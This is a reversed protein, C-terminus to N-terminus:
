ADFIVHVGTVTKIYIYPQRITKNWHTIFPSCWDSNQSYVDSGDFYAKSQNLASDWLGLNTNYQIKPQVNKLRHWFYMESIFWCNFIFKLPWQFHAYALSTLIIWNGGKSILPCSIWDSHHCILWCFWGLYCSCSWLIISQCSTSGALDEVKAISFSFFPPWEVESWKFALLPLFSLDWVAASPWPMSDIYQIM